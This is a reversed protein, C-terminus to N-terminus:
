PGPPAPTDSPAPPIDTPPPAQTDTPPPVSTDTPIPVDTPPPTRTPHPTNTPEPQDTRTPRRTNTPGPVTATETPGPTPTPQNYDLKLHLLREAYGGDKNEMRLRLTVKGNAANSIKWNYVATPEKVQDRSEFLMQWKDDGPNDGPALDLHWRDFGSTANAIVKVDMDADTLTDGDKINVIALTAHSDDAKCEREPTFFVPRDFGMSKAWARGSDDKRIWARAFRDDLTMFMKEEDVFDKCDNSALLGTWTDLAAENWLDKKAPLPPQDSAFIENRQQPCWRSPLTGSVACVVTDVIGPPRVFPSPNGGSLRQTAEQMFAAWIPAAGTLGTTNQMPTYDANGVWVGVV